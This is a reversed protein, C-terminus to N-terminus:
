PNIQVAEYAGATSPLTITCSDPAGSVPACNASFTTTTSTGTVDLRVTTGGDFIADCTGNGSRRCDDIGYPTSNIRIGNPRSAFVELEVLPIYTLTASRSVSTSSGGSDLECTDGSTGACDGGWEYRYDAVSSAELDVSQSLSFNDSCSGGGPSCSIGAPDSTVLGATAGSVSVSIALTQLTFSVGVSRDAGMTVTCTTGTTGACDGTWAVAYTNGGPPNASLTVPTGYDYTATCTGSSCSIGTGSVTGSGSVQLTLQQQRIFSATVTRDRDPTDTICSTATPYSDCDGSWGDFRFGANPFARMTVTHTQLRPVTCRTGPCDIENAVAPSGTTTSIVSGGDSSGPTNDIVATVANQQQFRAVLEVRGGVSFNCSQSTTCSVAGTIVQWEVFM